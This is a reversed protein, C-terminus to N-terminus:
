SMLFPWHQKVSGVMCDVDLSHIWREGTVEWLTRFCSPSCPTETPFWWRRREWRCTRWLRDVLVSLVTYLPVLSSMGTEHFVMVETFGWWRQLTILLSMGTEDFVIAETLGWWRQLTILERKKKLSDTYMFGHGFVLGRQICLVRVLCWRERYVHFGQGFVVGRQICSVRVLCWGERLVAMETM